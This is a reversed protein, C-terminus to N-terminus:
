PHPQGTKPKDKTATAHPGFRLHRGAHPAQQDGYCLRTIGTQAAVSVLLGILGIWVTRVFLPAYDTVPHGPAMRVYRALLVILVTCIVANIHIVGETILRQHHFPPIARQLNGIVMWWLFVIYLLQGKGVWSEPILPLRHRLHVVMLWVFAVAMALYAINFWWFSDLGYM